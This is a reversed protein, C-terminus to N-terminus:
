GAESSVTRRVRNARASPESLMTWDIMRRIEQGLGRDTVALLATEPRSLWSGFEDKSGYALAAGRAVLPVLWAHDAAARADRAVLVLAARGDAVALEVATSGAELKHARRASIVLGRIRRAAAAVLERHLELATSRVPSRLARSLGAPAQALCEPRPHVWAGRGFAGGALDFVVEGEPGLVLRVMGEPSLAARCGVCTRLM